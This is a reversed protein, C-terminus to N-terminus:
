LGRAEIALRLADVDLGILGAGNPTVIYAVLRTGHRRGRPGVYRLVGVAPENLEVKARHDNALKKCHVVGAEATPVVAPQRGPAWVFFPTVSM